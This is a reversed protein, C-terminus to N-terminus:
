GSRFLLRVILCNKRIAANTAIDIMMAIPCILIRPDEFDYEAGAIYWAVGEVV